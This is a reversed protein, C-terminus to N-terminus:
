CEGDIYAGAAYRIARKVASGFALSKRQSLLLKKRVKGQWTSLWVCPHNLAFIRAHRVTSNLILGNTDGDM